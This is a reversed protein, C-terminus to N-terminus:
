IKQVLPKKMVFSKGRLTAWTLWILINL